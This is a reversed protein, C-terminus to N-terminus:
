ENPETQWASTAFIAQAEEDNYSELSRFAEPIPAKIKLHTTEGDLSKRLTSSKSNFNESVYNLMERTVSLSEIFFHVTKNRFRSM